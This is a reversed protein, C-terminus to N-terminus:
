FKLLNEASNQNDVYMKSIFKSLIDASPEFTHRVINNVYLYYKIFLIFNLM